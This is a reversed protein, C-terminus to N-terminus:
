DRFSNERFGDLLRALVCVRFQVQMNSQSISYGMSPAEVTAGFHGVAQLVVGLVSMGSCNISKM